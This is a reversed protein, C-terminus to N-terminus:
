FWYHSPWLLAYGSGRIGALRVATQCLCSQLFLAPINAKHSVSQRHWPLWVESVQKLLFGSVLCDRVRQPWVVEKPVLPSCGVAGCSCCGVVSGMELHGSSFGACRAAQSRKLVCIVMIQPERYSHLTGLVCDVLQCELLKLSKMEVSHILHFLENYHRVRLLKPRSWWQFHFLLVCSTSKRTRDLFSHKCKACHM